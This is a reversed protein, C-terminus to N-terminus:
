EAPRLGWGDALRVVSLGLVTGIVAIVGVELLYPLNTLRDVGLAVVLFSGAIVFNNASRLLRDRGDEDLGGRTLRRVRWLVFTLVALVAGATLVYLWGPPAYIAKALVHPGKEVVPTGLAIQDPM